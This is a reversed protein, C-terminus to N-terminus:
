VMRKNLVRTLYGIVKQEGAQMAHDELSMGKSHLKVPFVQKLDELDARGYGVDRIVKKTEVQVEYRGLVAQWLRYFYNKM